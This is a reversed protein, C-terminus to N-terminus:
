RHASGTDVVSLAAIKWDGWRLGSPWVDGHRRCLSAGDQSGDGGGIQADYGVALAYHVLGSGTPGSGRAVWAALLGGRGAGQRMELRQAVECTAPLAGESQSRRAVCPLSDRMGGADLLRCRLPQVMESIAGGRRRRAWSCNRRVAEGRQKFLDRRQKDTQDRLERENPTVGRDRRPTNRNCM